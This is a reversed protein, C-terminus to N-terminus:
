LKTPDLRLLKDDGAKSEGRGDTNSTTIYLMKDPGVIVERIRGFENKFLERLVTTTGNFTIEYLAQGRLGGFYFKGNLFALGAPAWTEEDSQLLPAQLGEQAQSGRIIPWGYNVGSHIINFEDTANQGHEVSYLQGNDDWTIGQPNRHGYSYVRTGFPNGPAERGEDTVRLIKGALSTKDQALSPNAADGTTIYLFGDPGFKIRGGDHIQAGPISDVIVKESKLEGNDFVFRSVRNLTQNGTEGYTYYLYLWRNKVFNPHLAIGHLGGEGVKKVPLKAIPQPDLHGEKDLLRVTGVRETVLMVGDPLFALAWPVNLNTAIVEQQPQSKSPTPSQTTSQPAPSPIRAFFMVLGLALITLLLIIYKM